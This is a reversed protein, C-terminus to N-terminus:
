WRPPLYRELVSATAQKVQRFLRDHADRGPRVVIFAQNGASGVGAVKHAIGVIVWM